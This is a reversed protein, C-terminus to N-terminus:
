TESRPQISQRKEQGFAKFVRNQGMILIGLNHLQSYGFIHSIRSPMLDDSRFFGPSIVPYM